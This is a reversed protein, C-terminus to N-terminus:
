YHYGLTGGIYYRTNPQASRLFSTLTVLEDCCFEDDNDKVYFGFQDEYADKLEWMTYSLNHTTFNETVGHAVLQGLLGRFRILAPQMFEAKFNEDSEFYPDGNDDAECRIGKAHQLLNFLDTIDDDRTVDDYVYDAVPGIFYHNDVVEYVRLYEDKPVPRTGIQFIRGNSM